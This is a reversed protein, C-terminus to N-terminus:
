IQDSLRNRVSAISYTKIPARNHRKGTMIYIYLKHDKKQTIEPLRQGYKLHRLLVKSM